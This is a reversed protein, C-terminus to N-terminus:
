AHAQNHDVLDRYEAYPIDGRDVAGEHWPCLVADLDADDALQLGCEEVHGLRDIELLCTTTVPTTDPDTPLYYYDERTV